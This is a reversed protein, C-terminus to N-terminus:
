NRRIGTPPLSQTTPQACIPHPMSSSYAVNTLSSADRSPLCVDIHHNSDDDKEFEAPIMRYGALTSPAPLAAVTEGLTQEENDKADVPEDDKVQITVGSKPKFDPVIVTSVVKKFLAPDTSGKLGYNFARINAASVLYEM